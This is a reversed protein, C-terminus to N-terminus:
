NLPGLFPSDAFTDSQSDISEPWEPNPARRLHEPRPSGDWGIQEMYYYLQVCNGDPDLVNVTYDIGPHLEAPFDVIKCGQETLFHLSDRLQAYSGVQLGLSMLQSHSSFGLRERLALPYLALSHHESGSRLFVCRMGDFVVEETVTLGLVDRYFVVMEDVDPVFFRLPGLRVVKFPREMRVGGVTYDLSQPVPSQNGAYIDIGRAQADAVELSEPRQPLPIDGDFGLAHMTDPKSKRDWGIQEIGYYLENFHGDPGKFYVSWNSGPLERGGRVIPSGHESIFKAGEVVESLTNVQWTIQNVTTGPVGTALLFELSKNVLVLAHHDSGYTLLASRGDDVDKVIEALRPMDHVDVADSVHFGLIRTYFDLIQDYSTVVLGTHGLRRIKFPRSLRVGGVDYSSIGPDNNM